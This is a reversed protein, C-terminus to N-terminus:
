MRSLLKRTVKYEKDNLNAGELALVLGSSYTDTGQLLIGM